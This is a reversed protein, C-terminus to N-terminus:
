TLTDTVYRFPHTNYNLHSQLLTLTLGLSWVKGGIREGIGQAIDIEINIYLYM